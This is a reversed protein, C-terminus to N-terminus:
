VCGGDDENEGDREVTCRSSARGPGSHRGPVYSWGMESMPGSGAAMNTMSKVDGDGGRATDPKGEDIEIVIGTAPAAGKSLSSMCYQVVADIEGEV